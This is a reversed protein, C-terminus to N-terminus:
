SAENAYDKDGDLIEQFKWTRNTDFFFLNVTMLGFLIIFNVVAIENPSVAAM